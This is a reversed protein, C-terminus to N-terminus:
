SLPTKGGGFSAQPLPHPALRCTHGASCLGSRIGGLAIRHRCYLVEEQKAAFELLGLIHEAYHIRPSGRGDIWALLVHHRRIVTLISHGGTAQPRFDQLIAVSVYSSRASPWLIQRWSSYSPCSRAGRDLGYGKPSAM